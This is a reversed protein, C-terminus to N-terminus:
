RSIVLLRGLYEILLVAVSRGGGLDDLVVEDVLVRVACLGEREGHPFGLVLAGPAM